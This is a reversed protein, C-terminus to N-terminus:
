KEPNEVTAIIMHGNLFQGTNLHILIKPMQDKFGWQM